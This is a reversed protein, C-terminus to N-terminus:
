GVKHTFIMYLEEIIQEEIEKREEENKIVSHKVERTNESLDTYKTHYGTSTKEVAKLM